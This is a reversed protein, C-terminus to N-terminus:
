HDLAVYGDGFPESTPQNLERTKTHSRNPVSMMASRLSVAPFLGPMREDPWVGASPVSIAWVRIM